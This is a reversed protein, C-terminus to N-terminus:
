DVFVVDASQFRHGLDGAGLEGLKSAADQREYADSSYLREIERRVDGDVNSPIVEKRAQAVTCSSVVIVGLFAPLIPIGAILAIPKM